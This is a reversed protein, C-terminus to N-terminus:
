LSYESEIKKRFGASVDNFTRAAKVFAVTQTKTKTFADKVVMMKKGLLDDHEKGDFGDEHLKKDLAKLSSSISKIDKLLENIANPGIEDQYSISISKKIADKEPGGFATWGHKKIDDLIFKTCMFPPLLANAVSQGVPGSRSKFRPLENIKDLGKTRPITYYGRNYESRFLSEMSEFVRVLDQCSSFWKEYEDWAKKAKSGSGSESFMKVLGAVARAQFDGGDKQLQSALKQIGSKWTSFNPSSLAARIIYSARVFRQVREKTDRDM